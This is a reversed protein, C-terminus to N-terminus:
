EKLFIEVREQVQKACEEAAIRGDYFENHIKTVTQSLSGWTSLASESNRESNWRDIMLVAEEMDEGFAARMMKLANNRNIPIGLLLNRYRDTLFELPKEEICFRIFKWALDKNKSGSLIGFADGYGFFSKEGNTASIPIPMTMNPKDYFVAANGKDQYSSFVFNCLDNEATMVDMDLLSYNQWVIQLEELTPWRMKSLKNLNNIYEESNFEVRGSRIDLYRNSDLMEFIPAGWYHSLMLKDNGPAIKDYVDLMEKFNITDGGPAEIQNEALITKNFRVCYYLFGRPIGYLKDEYEMADLINTYYDEKHFEPDNEMYYNLDELLNNKGFQIYPMSNLDIIDGATGSMLEVAAKEAGASYDQGIEQQGRVTIKINPYKKNFETIRVEYFSDPYLPSYITLEGQTEDIAEKENTESDVTLPLEANHLMNDIDSTHLQYIRENQNQCGCLLVLIMCLMIFRVKIKIKL